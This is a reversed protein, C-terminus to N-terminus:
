VADLCRVQVFHAADGPKCGFFYARPATAPKAKERRTLVGRTQMEFTVYAVDSLGLSTTGRCSQREGSFM